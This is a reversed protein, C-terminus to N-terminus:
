CTSVASIIAAHAAMLTAERLFLVTHCFLLIYIMISSILLSLLRLHVIKVDCHDCVQMGQGYVSKVEFVHGM